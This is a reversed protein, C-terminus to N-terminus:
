HTHPVRLLRCPHPAGGALKCFGPSAGHASPLPTKPGGPQTSLGPLRTGVM